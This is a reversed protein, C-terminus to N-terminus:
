LRCKRYRALSDRHAPGPPFFWDHYGRDRPRSHRFPTTGTRAPLEISNRHAGCINSCCHSPRRLIAFRVGCAVAPFNKQLGRLGRRRPRGRSSVVGSREGSRRRSTADEIERPFIGTPPLRARERRLSFPRLPPMSFHANTLRNKRRPTKKFGLPMRWAFPLVHCLSANKVNVGFVRRNDKGGKKFFRFFSGFIGEKVDSSKTCCCADSPIDM